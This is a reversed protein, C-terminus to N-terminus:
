PMHHMVARRRDTAQVHEAGPGGRSQRGRAIRDGRRRARLDGPLRCSVRRAHLRDQTRGATAIRAEGELHCQNCVSDRRAGALKRPQDDARAGQRPRKGSRSMARVGRGAAPVSRRRIQQGHAPAAPQVRSAHCFLCTSDVPHNLEMEVLQAYGPRCTGDTKRRTTISPRSISSATSRLCSRAAARTRAWTPVEVAAHRPARTAGAPRIVSSCAQGQRQVRYSVGSAAHYFTGETLNPLAPGSTRAMATSSYSDYIAKHCAACAENGVDVRERLQEGSWAIGSWVALSLLLVM